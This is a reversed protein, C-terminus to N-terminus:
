FGYSYALEIVKFGGTFICFRFSIFIQMGFHWLLFLVFFTPTLLSNQDRSTPTRAYHRKEKEM